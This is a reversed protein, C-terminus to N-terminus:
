SHRAYVNLIIPLVLREGNKTTIRIEGQLNGVPVNRTIEAEIQLTLAPADGPSAPKDPVFHAEIYPTSTTLELDRLAESSVGVLTFQRVARNGQTISGFILVRPRASISGVVEGTLPAGINILASAIRQAQSSDRDDSSPKPNGSSKSPKLLITIGGEVMGLRANAALEIRYGFTRSRSIPTAAPDLDRASTGKRASIAKAEKLTISKGKIDKIEGTSVIKVDPNSCLFQPMRGGAFLRTDIGATLTLQRAKGAPVSGFELISPELTVIPQVAATMEITIAPETSGVVYVWLYKDFKGPKLNALDISVNVAITAGPALSQNEGSSGSATLATTCGCTPQFREIVLSTKSNNRFTFTHELHPTRLLDADGFDYHATTPTDAVLGDTAIVTLGERVSSDPKTQQGTAQKNISTTIRSNKEAFTPDPAAGIALAAVCGAILTSIPNHVRVRM